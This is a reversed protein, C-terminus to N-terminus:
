LISTGNLGIPLGIVYWIILMALLIGGCVISYPIQYRLSKFLSIRKESTNYKDLMSLYIVFYAMLPTLGMTFCEGFRFIVQTFQPTIGANMFTPIVVPSLITWKTISSPVFITSLAAILFLLIILPIGTFKLNTILSALSAVIIEGINSYRFISIFASALFILVLTKGIGDVSHGLTDVFDQNNNITKAGIGYFFGLIIFFMTVVFVFGNSFFSNYSFLKDIYLAQGNDLLNGSFPLGPTIQYIFFLIYILGAIASFALGRMDKRSIKLEEIDDEPIEYKGLKNVLHKETIMTIAFSIIIIAIIMIFIFSTTAFRFTPDLMKAGLISASLLSSDISTIYLSLGSGCTLGAFSAIIGILPNRKGYKFVLASIPIMVVYCLDGMFSSIVSILVILFTVTNKKMKKTLLSLSSKLFGSKEMVGIGILIIILSSLPTFAVFNQVTSSFIYKLGTFSLINDVKLLETSYELSNPNIKYQVSQVGMLSLLGSLIITFGILLILTMIPHLTMKEKLKSVKM